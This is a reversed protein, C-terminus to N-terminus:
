ANKEKQVNNFEILKEQMEIAAAVAEESKAFIAM